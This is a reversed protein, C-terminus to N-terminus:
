RVELQAVLRPYFRAVVCHWRYTNRKTFSGPGTPLHQIGPQHGQRQFCLIPAAGPRRKGWSEMVEGKPTM